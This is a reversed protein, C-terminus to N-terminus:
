GPARHLRGGPGIAGPARAPEAPHHALRRAAPRAAGGPRPRHRAPPRDAKPRTRGYASGRQRFAAIQEANRRFQLLFRCAAGGNEGVQTSSLPVMFSTTTMPAPWIPEVMAANRDAVM